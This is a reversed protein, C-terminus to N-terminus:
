KKNRERYAKKQQEMIDLMRQINDLIAQREEPPTTDHEDEYIAQALRDYYEPRVAQKYNTGYRRVQEHESKWNAESKDILQKWDKIRRGGAKWHRKEYYNFFQEPDVHYGNDTVYGQVDALSPSLDTLDKKM